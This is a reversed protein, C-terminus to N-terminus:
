KKRRRRRRGDAARASKEPLKVAAALNPCPASAHPIAMAAVFHEQFRPETATEIKEIREVVNAIEQRASQSVLAMRAGTGAANGASAVQQLPCDPILGLVMAHLPDIHNGFAGALRIREVSDIGMEDMLLRAGAHLAAKALQIARVDEQTVAIEPEGARLVWAFGRGRAHVHPCTQALAANFRGNADIIGALYMQAVAEIIGSGCIGTVGSEAVAEEFGEEDSWLDCGIVKYRAKFTKSDIRVREIAGPAARQGCSIQAGEFAPGTPSSCALLRERNGLIIEANTGVDVILTMERREHPAEALIVAAADAGVHGAICPLVHARAAPALELDIAAARMDLAEGTALAFPAQGLQRPDIGLLLHHMVPNGVLTVDLIDSAALGARAAVQRALDNIADRVAATMQAAGGDNMMAWSVRSMLDEGFRIQPNMIGASALVDGTHLDCLHAAITTSGVDVALGSLREDFGPRIGILRAPEKEGGQHVVATVRWDGDRLAEQVKPLVAPDPVLEHIDWEEELAQALRAFDSSPDALDPKEVDVLLARILPDTAVKRGGAQKRVVQRHIQSQPPIDIVVDGLIRAQCALRRGKDLGRLRAYKEEAESPPTLHSASSTVGEKPFAGDLVNVQCKGCIARGGCASDLDAGLARAAGLVTQGTRVQGRLGSPMFIIRATTSKDSM